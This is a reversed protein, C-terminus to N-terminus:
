WEWGDLVEIEWGDIIEGDPFQIQFLAGVEPDIDNDQDVTRLRLFSFPQGVREAYQEFPSQFTSRFPLM